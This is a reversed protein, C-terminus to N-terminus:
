IYKEYRGQEVVKHGLLTIAQAPCASICRYCMTCRDEAVARGGEICLNKMPCLRVCTGCGTCSGSIKLGRSYDKTKRRFWVRQGLAGALRSCAGLGEQPYEGHKIREAWVKLKEDAERVIAQNEALSRKLLKVDSISDPMKIHLGGIVHAGCKKLLRAGCGAGDGSFMGMTALCLVQKGRWLAPNELIFDRVMVPLNSYQIPYAFLICDAEQIAKKADPTEMPLSKEDPGLLSLLLEACHKTNGTGSFYIGTM